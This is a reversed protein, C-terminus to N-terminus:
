VSKAVNLCSDHTTALTCLSLFLYDFGVHLTYTSLQMVVCMIVNTWILNTVNFISRWSEVDTTLLLWCACDVVNNGLLLLWSFWMTSYVCDVVTLQIYSFFCDDLLVCLIAVLTVLQDLCDNMNCRLQEWHCVQSSWNRCCCCWHFLDLYYVKYQM